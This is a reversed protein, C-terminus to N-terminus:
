VEIQGERRRRRLLEFLTEVTRRLVNGALAFALAQADLDSAREEVVVRLPPELERLREHLRVWVGRAGPDHEAVRLASEIAVRHRALRVAPCGPEIGRHEERLSREAERIEETLRTIERLRLPVHLLRHGRLRVLRFSVLHEAVVM